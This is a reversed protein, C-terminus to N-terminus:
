LVGLDKATLDLCLKAKNLLEDIENISITLPPSIIMSQATARMILDNEFCHNKCIGAADQDGSYVEHTDKDKVLQIAAMLGRGRREGVLPHTAVLDDLGAILHPGTEDRVKEVLGNDKIYNINAISVASAVPHGSYTYGHNIDGGDNLVKFVDDHIGSASLPIYGSSIGKAM